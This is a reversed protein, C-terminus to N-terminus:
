SIYDLSNITNSIKDQDWKDGFPRVGVSVWAKFPSSVTAWDWVTDSARASVIAKDQKEYIPNWTREDFLHIVEGGALFVGDYQGDIKKREYGEYHYGQLEISTPTYFDIKVDPIRKQLEMNFVHSFLIDGYNDIDAFSMMAVKINKKM